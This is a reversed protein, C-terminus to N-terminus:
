GNEQRHPSEIYLNVKLKRYEIFLIALGRKGPLSKKMEALSIKSGPLKLGPAPAEALSVGGAGPRM